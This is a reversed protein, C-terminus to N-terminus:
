APPWPPPEHNGTAKKTANGYRVSRGASTTATCASTPRRRTSTPTKASATPRAHRAPTAIAIRAAGPNHREVFATNIQRSVPSRALAQEIEHPEGFVVRCDIKTVRGKHRTKHVMAYRLDPPAVQYPSRPRGPRGSRPPTVTRGYADLIAQRYPPYEDTTILNLMRGRTRRKVDQVLTQVKRATRKGPVVSLV